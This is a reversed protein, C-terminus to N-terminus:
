QKDGISMEDVKQWEDSSVQDLALGFSTKGTRARELASAFPSTAEFNAPLQLSLACYLALDSRVTLGLEQAKAIRETILKWRACATLGSLLTSDIERVQDAVAWPFLANDLATVIAQSFKLSGNLVATKHREIEQMLGCPSLVAWRRVPGIIRLRQAPTLIPWLAGTVHPDHFRFLAASGNPMAVERIARLHEDLEALSCDGLLFSFAEHELAQQALFHLATEKDPVELLWPGTKAIELGGLDDYLKRLKSINQEHLKQEFEAWNPVQTCDVLVFLRLKATAISSGGEVSKTQLWHVLEAATKVSVSLSEAM